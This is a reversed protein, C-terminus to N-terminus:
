KLSSCYDLFSSKLRPHADVVPACLEPFRKLFPILPTNDRPFAWKDKPCQVVAKKSDATIEIQPWALCIFCGAVFVNTDSHFAQPVNDLIFQLAM